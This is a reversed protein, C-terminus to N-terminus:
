RDPRVKDLGLAASLEPVSRELTNWVQDPDTVEYHHVLRNRMDVIQKWPVEPFDAHFAVPLRRAAEGIRTIVVEGAMQLVRDVIFRAYTRRVLDGAVSALDNLDELSQRVKADRWWPDLPDAAPPPDVASEDDARETM